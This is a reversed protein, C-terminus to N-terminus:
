ASKLPASFMSPGYAREIPKLRRRLGRQMADLSLAGLKGASVEYRPDVITVFWLPMGTQSLLDHAQAALTLFTVREGYWCASSCTRNPCGRGECAILQEWRHRPVNGHVFSALMKTQKLQLLEVTPLHKAGKEELEALLEPSLDHPLSTM